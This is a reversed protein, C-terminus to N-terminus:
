FPPTGSVIVIRTSTSGETLTIHVAKGDKRAQFHSATSSTSRFIASWGEEELTRAYFADVTEVDEQVIAAHYQEPVSDSPDFPSVDGSTYRSESFTAGPFVALGGPAIAEAQPAPRPPPPAPSPPLSSSAAESQAPPAAQEPAPPEPGARREVSPSPEDDLSIGLEEFQAMDVNLSGAMSAYGGIIGAMIVTMALSTLLGAMKSPHERPLLLSLILATPPLNFALLWFFCGLGGHITQPAANYDRQAKANFHSDELTQEWDDDDAFDNASRQPVAPAAAPRVDESPEEERATFPDATEGSLADFATSGVDGRSASTPEPVLFRAGCHKCGGKKGAYPDPVRLTHGCNPCNFEIM